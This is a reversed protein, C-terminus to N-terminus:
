PLVTRDDAQEAAGGSGGEGREFAEDPGPVAPATVSDVPLGPASRGGVAGSDGLTLSLPGPPM